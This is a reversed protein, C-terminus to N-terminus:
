DFENLNAFDDELNSLLQGVDHMKRKLAAYEKQSEEAILKAEVLKTAWRETKEAKEILAITPKGWSKFNTGAMRDASARYKQATDVVRAILEDMATLINPMDIPKSFALIAELDERVKYLVSLNESATMESPMPKCKEHYMRPTQHLIQLRYAPSGPYISEGCKACTYTKKARKVHTLSAM